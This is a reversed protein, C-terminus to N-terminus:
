RPVTDRFIGNEVSFGHSIVRAPVGCVFANDLVDADAGSQM